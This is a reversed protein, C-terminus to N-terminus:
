RAKRVIIYIVVIILLISLPVLIYNRSIVFKVIEPLIIKLYLVLFSKTLNDIASVLQLLNGNNIPTTQGASYIFDINVTTDNSAMFEYTNNASIVTGNVELLEQISENGVATGNVKFPYSSQLLILSGNQVPLITSTNVTAYYFGVGNVVLWVNVAENENLHFNLFVLYKANGNLDLTNNPLPAHLFNVYLVKNQSANLPYLYGQFGYPSSSFYKAVQGNVAFPYKSILLVGRDKTIELIATQNITIWPTFSNYGNSLWLTISKTENPIVTIYVYRTQASTLLSTTPLKLIQLFGPILILALFLLTFAKRMIKDLDINIQRNIHKERFEMSNKCNM